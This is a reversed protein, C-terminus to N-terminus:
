LRVNHFMIKQLKLTMEAWGNKMMRHQDDLNDDDDMDVDPLYFSLIPWLSLQRHGADYSWYSLLYGLRRSQPGDGRLKVQEWLLWTM